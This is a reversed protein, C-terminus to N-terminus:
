IPPLSLGTSASEKGLAPLPPMAPTVVVPDDSVPTRSTLCYWAMYVDSGCLVHRMRRWSWRAVRSDNWRWWVDNRNDQKADAKSRGVAIYHGGDGTGEHLALAFLAFSARDLKGQVEVKLPVVVKTSLRVTGTPTAAFRRIGVCWVEPFCMFQAQLLHTTNRMCGYPCFRANDETLREIDSLHTLAEGLHVVVSPDLAAIWTMFSSDEVYHRTHCSDCESATTTIIELLPRLPNCASHSNECLEHAISTILNHFETVDQHLRHSNFPAPLADTFDSARIAAAATTRLEYLVMCLEEIVSRKSDWEDTPIDTSPSRQLELIKETVPELGGLYMAQLWVNAYCTGGLNELGTPTAVTAPLPVPVAAVAVTTTPATTHQSLSTRVAPQLHTSKTPTDMDQNSCKAMDADERQEQDSTDVHKDPMLEGM